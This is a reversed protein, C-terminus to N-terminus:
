VWGFVMCIWFGGGLVDFLLVTFGFCFGFGWFLLGFVVVFGVLIWIWGFGFVVVLGVLVGFGGLVVCVCIGMGFVDLFGCGFWVVVDVVVWGLSGCVM